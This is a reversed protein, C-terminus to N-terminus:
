QLIIKKTNVINNSADYIKVFYIGQGGWTNLPITYQQQNMAGSFVEQSLTNFIRINWGSVNALNGCDITIHDNAPNPYITVTNNYTVPNFGLVGTNIVLSQCSNESYYLSTIEDQTLARNWIGFDDIKGKFYSQIINTITTPLYGLYFNSSSQASNFNLTGSNVLTSNKYIKVNNTGVQYIVVYHIWNNLITPTSIGNTGNATTLTIAHTADIGNVAFYYNSNSASMDQYKSFICDTYYPSTQSIRAREPNIWVSFSLINTSTLAYINSNGFNINNNVGDFSYASNVNGFRDTTLTVGNVTGNNANPSADNANGNFSWYGVLENTPAYSPVQAIIMQTTMAFGIALLLLKKKM